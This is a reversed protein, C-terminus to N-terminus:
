AKTVGAKAMAEDMRSRLAEIEWAQRHLLELWAQKLEPTEGYFGTAAGAGDAAVAERDLEAQRALAVPVETTNSLEPLVRKMARAYLEAGGTIDIWRFPGCFSAWLGAANRYARDITAADAVGSELLNMAERYKAYGIRNVIFGPIDNVVCPEKGLSKGFAVMRELVAASTEDGGILELFRTAFAPEAWHMGLVREPHAFGRQIETIPLASTNSALPVDAGVIAEMQLLLERKLALLESVSEIVLDCGAFSELGAAWTFHERWRACAAACDARHEAIERMVGELYPVIEQQMAPERDYVIVELGRALLSATIGRGLLGLGVVGVRRINM